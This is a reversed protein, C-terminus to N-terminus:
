DLSTPFKELQKEVETKPQPTQDNTEKAKAERLSLTERYEKAEAIMTLQVTLGHEKVIHEIEDLSTKFFEARYNVLNLRKKDLKRHLINELGPANDSYIMAHVDFDFPVSADGLENIRDLPELRRTMGIKFVDDGFSGINSIIYVHGSKTLQAQSIAREKVEHARQLNEELLKIKQNLADVEQGNAKEVEAKAKDLAKQYREEEDEADKRAKEMEKLAKEEERMQERIKRQEEKEKNVKEELEFELRLEEVKLAYYEDTVVIQHSSGLKNIAEFAKQVRAEMNGINSWNVKAIAADCEGNFARLMLKSYNKTMRKGEAKSGGVEWNLPCHTAREDKIIQKQKDRVAEIRQKFEETTKYDFHPKYLGFSINELNEELVTIEGLLSEYISRKSQFDSNLQEKQKNFDAALGDVQQNVTKLEGKKNALEKDVDIIDKYQTKFKDFDTQTQALDGEAQKHAQGKKVLLFTLIAAIVALVLLGIVEPTM